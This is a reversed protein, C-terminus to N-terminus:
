NDKMLEEIIIELDREATQLNLGSDQLRVTGQKGIFFTTPYSRVGYLAAVSEDYLIPFVIKQQQAFTVVKPRDEPADVTIALIEFGREKYKEYAKSFMPMEKICPKCWTAWFNVMVIKGKLDSLKVKRGDITSLEFDKAPENKFKSKINTLYANKAELAFSESEELRNLSKLIEALHTLNNESRRFKLAERLKAEAEATKGMKFLVWGYTDLADARSYNYREMQQKESYYDEFFKNGKIGQADKVLVPTTTLEEARRAYGLAKELDRKQNALIRAVTALVSVDKPNIELLKEGYSVAAADNKDNLSLGILRDYISKKLGANPNL